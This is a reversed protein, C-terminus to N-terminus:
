APEADPAAPAAGEDQLDALEGEARSTSAILAGAWRLSPDVSILVARVLLTLPVALIAGLPGIVMTWFALSLFTVTTALGVTDGVFKPQILSQLVFNVSCYAIIVIIMDRPGGELLALISVPILGIVFGVNPIYGTLFALIGWVWPDPIGLLALIAVDVLAVLAGFVTAVLLYLRTGRAFEAFSDVIQPRLRAVLATRAPFGVSDICIFFTVTLLMILSALVGGLSGLTAWAASAIQAPSLSALADQIDQNTVGISILWEEISQQIEAFQESYTPVLRAFDLLAIASGVFLVIIVGYALLMTLLMAAWSPLGRRMLASILPFVTVVIVMGLLAPGVINNATRIGLLALVVGGAAVMIAGFRREPVSPAAPTQAVEVAALDDDSAHILAPASAAPEPRPEAGPAPTPEDPM